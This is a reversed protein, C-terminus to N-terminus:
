RIAISTDRHSLAGLSDRTDDDEAEGLEKKREAGKREAGGRTKM